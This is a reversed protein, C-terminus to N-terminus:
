FNYGMRRKKKVYAKCCVISVCLKMSVAWIDKAIRKNSCLVKQMNQKAWPEFSDDWKLIGMNFTSYKRWVVVRGSCLSLSEKIETSWSKRDGAMKRWCFTVAINIITWRIYTYTHIIRMQVTRVAREVWWFENATHKSWCMRCWESFWIVFKVM